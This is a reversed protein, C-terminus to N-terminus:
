QLLCVSASLRRIAPVFGGSGFPRLRRPWKMRAKAVDGPNYNRLHKM